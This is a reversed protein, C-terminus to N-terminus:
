SDIIEQGIKSFNKSCGGQTNLEACWSHYQGWFSKEGELFFKERFVGFKPLITTM